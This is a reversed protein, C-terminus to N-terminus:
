RSVIKHVILYQTECKEVNMDRRKSYVYLNRYMMKTSKTGSEKEFDTRAHVFTCANLLRCTNIM